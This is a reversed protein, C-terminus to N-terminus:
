IRQPNPKTVHNKNDYLSSVDHMRYDHIAEFLIQNTRQFRHIEASDLRMQDGAPPAAIFDRVQPLSRLQETAQAGLFDPLRRRPEIGPDHPM